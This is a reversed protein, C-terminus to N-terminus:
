RDSVVEIPFTDNSTQIYSRLLQRHRQLTDNHASTEALNIMEGPDDQLNVLFEKHAGQNFVMYKWQDTCTARGMIGSAQGFTGFETEIFVAELQAPLQPSGITCSWDIGELSKPCEIGALGCLTPILDIGTNILQTHDVRNLQSDPQIIFFPVRASEDYLSQKQNWQHHANGDGHDSSFVILTEKWLGHKKLTAILQGIHADVMEVMRCYQWRHLRWRTEDWHQTPYNKASYMKQVQRIVSPEHEPIAFNEPLPPLQDINEFMGPDGDPFHNSRTAECINHPNNCSASFLFPRTDQGRESLFRDFDPAIGQDAGNAILNNTWEFGQREIDETPVQVHWKGSYATAFGADRFIQGMMHDAQLGKNPLNFSIGHQHPMLGSYWSNRQPMCLPQAAYAREFRIGDAALQDLHPTSLDPNGACSLMTASQQDTTILLINHM